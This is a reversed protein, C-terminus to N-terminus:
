EAGRLDQGPNPEVPEAPELRARLALRVAREEARQRRLWWVIGAALICTAAVLGWRWAPSAIWGPAPPQWELRNALILPAAWNGREPRYSWVKFFYGTVLVHDTPRDPAPIPMEKPRELCVVVYPSQLSDETFLNGQYMQTIGHSNEGSDMPTLDRLSGRLTVPLGRYATPQKILEYFMSFKRNTKRAAHAAQAQARVQRAAAQQLAASTERAHALLAYYADHEPGSFGSTLDRVGALQEVPFAAGAVSQAKLLREPGGVREDCRGATLPAALCV